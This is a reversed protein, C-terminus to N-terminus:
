FCLGLRRQVRRREAQQHPLLRGFTASLEAERQCEHVAAAQNGFHRQVLRTEAHQSVGVRMAPFAVSCLRLLLGVNAAAFTPSKNANSCLQEAKLTPSLRHSRQRQPRTSVIIPYHFLLNTPRLRSKRRFHGIFRGKKGVKPYQAPFFYHPVKCRSIFCLSSTAADIRNNRKEM